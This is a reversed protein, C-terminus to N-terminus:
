LRPYPRHDPVWVYTVGCVGGICRVGLTLETPNTGLHNCGWGYMYILSIYMCPVPRRSMWVEWTCSNAIRGFCNNQRNTLHHKTTPGHMIPTTKGTLIALTWLPAVNSMDPFYKFCGSSIAITEMQRVIEEYVCQIFFQKDPGPKIGFPREVYGKVWHWRWSLGATFFRWVLM